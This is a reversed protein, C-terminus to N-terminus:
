PPAMILVAALYCAVLMDLHRETLIKEYGYLATVAEMTGPPCRDFFSYPHDREVFLDPVPEPVEQVSNVPPPSSPTHRPFVM